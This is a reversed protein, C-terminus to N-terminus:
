PTRPLTANSLAPSPSAARAPHVTLFRRLRGKVVLFGHDVWGLISRDSPSDGYAYSGAPPRDIGLAERLLAVKHEGKCNRGVIQGDCCDERLAIRTCVVHEVGLLRGIEEVYLDPSASLLVVRHGAAQHERLALVLDPRLRRPVWQECFRAAHRAIEARTEGRFFAVTLREKTDHDSRLRGLYLALHFPLGLLARLRRRRIAYGVLFPLFTDGRVLTGDLDFVALPRSMMNPEGSLHTVPDAM